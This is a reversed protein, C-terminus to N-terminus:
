VSEAKSSILQRIVKRPACTLQKERVKAGQISTFREVYVLQHWQPFSAGGKQQQQLMVCVKRQLDATIGVHFHAGTVDVMVYLVVDM